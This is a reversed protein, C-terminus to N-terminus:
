GTSEWVGALTFTGWGRQAVQTMIQDSEHYKKKWIDLWFKGHEWKGRNSRMRSSDVKLFVGKRETHKLQTTTFLVLNGQLGKRRWASFVCREWGRRPCWTSWGGRWIPPRRQVQKLMDVDKTYHPVCFSCLVHLEKSAMGGTQGPGESQCCGSHQGSGWNSTMQLSSSLAKQGM